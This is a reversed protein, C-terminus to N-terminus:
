YPANYCQSNGGVMPYSPYRSYGVDVCERVLTKGQKAIGAVSRWANTNGCVVWWGNSDTTVGATASAPWSVTGTAFLWRVRFHMCGPRTLQIYSGKALEADYTAPTYWHAKDVFWNIQGKQHVEGGHSYSDYPSSGYYKYAAFAPTATVGVIAGTAVVAVLAKARWGRVWKKTM